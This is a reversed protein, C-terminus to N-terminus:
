ALVCWYRQSCCTRNVTRTSMGAAPQVLLSQQSYAYPLLMLMLLPLLLM